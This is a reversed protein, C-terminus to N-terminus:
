AGELHDRLANLARRWQTDAETRVAVDEFLSGAHVLNVVTEEGNRAVSFQTTTGKWPGRSVKDWSIELKSTPRCNLLMGTEEVEDGADNEVKLVVRGGTRADIRAEDVLWNGLGEATTLATWVARPNAGITVQRRISSM